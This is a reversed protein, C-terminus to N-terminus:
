RSLEASRASPGRRLLLDRIGALYGLGYGAHLTAFAGVLGPLSGPGAGTRQAFFVAGTLYCLLLLMLLLWAGRFFLGALTLLLITLILLPPALQRLSTVTGHKRNVYVKWYGYQSYQRFVKPLSSRVYYRSRIAHSFWIKRGAQLLRFNLEDDQNRVLEEDFLGIAMLDAKHYAGFALTDVYGEAGGTRFRANGVGFPSSLIPLACTQVGTVHFDRIGDEAQFFFFFFCASSLTRQF